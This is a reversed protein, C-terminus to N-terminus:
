SKIMEIKLVNGKLDCSFDLKCGPKLNEPLQIEGSKIFKSDTMFGNVNPAEYCIFLKVGKVPKGDNAVFDLQKYGILQILM